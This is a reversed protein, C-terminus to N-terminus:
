VLGDAALVLEGGGTIRLVEAVTLEYEGRITEYLRHLEPPVLSRVYHGALDMDTKALTMAVNSLFNGFFRVRRADGRLRETLGAARAAALGTGLGYWGPVIQRSQTWGFVWPIARLGDLGAGSDPRSPRRAMGHTKPHVCDRCITGPQYPSPVPSAAARAAPSVSRNRPSARRTRKKPLKRDLTAMVSALVSM